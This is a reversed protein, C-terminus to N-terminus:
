TILVYIRLDFKHNNILLPNAIYQSVVGKDPIMEIDNLIYIGRGQSSSVPKSIWVNGLSKYFDKKFEETMEPIM